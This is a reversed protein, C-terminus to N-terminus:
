GYDLWKVLYFAYIRDHCATGKHVPSHRPIQPFHVAHMVTVLGRFLRQGMVCYIIGMSTWKVKMIVGNEGNGRMPSVRVTSGAPFLANYICHADFLSLCIRGGVLVM